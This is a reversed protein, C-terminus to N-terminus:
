KPSPICIKPPQLGLMKKVKMALVSFSSLSSCFIIGLELGSHVNTNHGPLENGAVSGPWVQPQFRKWFYSSKTNDDAGRLTHSRIPNKDVNVINGAGM